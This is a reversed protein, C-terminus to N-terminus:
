GFPSADHPEDTQVDMAVETLDRNRFASFSAGGAAHLAAGLLQTHETLAQQGIVPHDGLAGAVRKLDGPHELREHALDHDRVRHM